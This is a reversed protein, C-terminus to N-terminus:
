KAEAAPAPLRFTTAPRDPDDGPETAPEIVRDRALLRLVGEVLIEVARHRRETPELMVVEAHRHSAARKSARAVRAVGPDDIDSRPPQPM